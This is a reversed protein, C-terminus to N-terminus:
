RGCGPQSPPAARSERLRRREDIRRVLALLRDLEFPKVLYDVADDKMAEVADGISAFGTMVLVEVHPFQLRVRRLLTMGDMVPLRVDTIVLHSARATLQEIAAHGDPATQVGHGEERLVEALSSLIDPEDDVLLINLM